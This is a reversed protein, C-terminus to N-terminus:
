LGLYFKFGVPAQQGLFEYEWVCSLKDSFIYDETLGQIGISGMFLDAEMRQRCQDALSSLTEFTKRQAPIDARPNIRVSDLSKKLSQSVEGHYTYAEAHKQWWTLYAKPGYFCYFADVLQKDKENKMEQEIFDFFQEYREAYGKESADLFMKVIEDYGWACMLGMWRDDDVVPMWDTGGYVREPKEMLFEVYSILNDCGRIKLKTRDGVLLYYQWYLAVVAGRQNTNARLMDTVALLTETATKQAGPMKAYWEAILGSGILGYYDNDKKANSLYRELVSGIDALATYVEGRWCLIKNQSLYLITKALGINNVFPIWKTDRCTSYQKMIGDLFRTYEYVQSAYFDKLVGDYLAAVADDWRACLARCVDENDWCKAGFFVFPRTFTKQADFNAIEHVLARDGSLWRGVKEYGFRQNIDYQLLGRILVELFADEKRIEELGYYTNNLMAKNVQIRQADLGDASYNRLINRYMMEGSYLTWITQGLSYYDSAEVAAQSMLEPAYYGLTGTKNKDTALGDRLDCTIGFDGIVIKGKYKYLNDPKVDRHVLGAKHFHYLAQNLAPIVEDHLERYTIEGKRRGLDGDECFPYIEVYREEGNLIVTGHDLLPLIHADENDRVSDLFRIVKDRTQRKEFSSAPTLSILVRAVYRGKENVKHCGYIQSEGSDASVVNAAEIVFSSGRDGVFNVDATVLLRGGTAGVRIAGQQPVTAIRGDAGMAAQPMTPVRQAAASGQPMTPIRGSAAANQPMTPIRESTAANQPMTPIRVEDVQPMTPIREESM